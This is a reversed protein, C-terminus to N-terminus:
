LIEPRLRSPRYSILFAQQGAVDQKVATILDVGTNWVWVQDNYSHHELNTSLPQGHRARLGALVETMDDIAFEYALHMLGQDPDVDFTAQSVPLRDLLVDRAVYRGPQDRHIPQGDGLHNAVKELPMGWALGEVCAEVRGASCFLLLAMAASVLLKQFWSMGNM